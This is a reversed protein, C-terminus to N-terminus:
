THSLTGYMVLTHVKASEFFKKYSEPDLALSKVADVTLMADVWKLM